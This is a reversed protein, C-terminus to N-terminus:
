PQSTGQPFHGTMRRALVTTGTRASTTGRGV